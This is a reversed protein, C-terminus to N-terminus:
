DGVGMSEMAAEAAEVIQQDEINEVVWELYHPAQEAIDEFFEGRHLGFPMRDLVQEPQEGFQLDFLREGEQCWVLSHHQCDPCQRIHHGLPTPSKARENQMTREHNKARELATTRERIIAREGTKTREPYKAREVLITREAPM